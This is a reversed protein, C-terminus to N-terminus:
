KPLFKLPSKIAEETEYSTVLFEDMKQIQFVMDFWAEQLAAWEKALPPGAAWLPLTTSHLLTELAPHLPDSTSWGNPLHERWQERDLKFIWQM